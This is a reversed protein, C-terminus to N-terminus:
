STLYTKVWVLSLWYVPWLHFYILQLPHLLNEIYIVLYCRLRTEYCDLYCVGMRMNLPQNWYDFLRGHKLPTSGFLLTKNASRHAFSEICLINMIFHEKNVTSFTQRTFRNVVPDLFERLSKRFVYIVDSWTATNLNRCFSLSKHQPNRHVPLAIPSTYWHQHTHRSIFTRKWTRIDM